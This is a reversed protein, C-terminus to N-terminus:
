NYSSIRLTGGSSGAPLEELCFFFVAELSKMRTFSKLHFFGRPIKGTFVLTVFGLIETLAAM